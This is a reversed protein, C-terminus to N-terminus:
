DPRCRSVPWVADPMAIPGSTVGVDLERKEAIREPRALRHVPIPPDVHVEGRCDAAVGELGYPLRNPSPVQRSILSLLMSSRDVM